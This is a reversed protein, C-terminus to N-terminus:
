LLEFICKPIEYLESIFGKNETEVRPTLAGGILGWVTLGKGEEWRVKVLAQM